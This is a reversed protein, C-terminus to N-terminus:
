LWDESESFMLADVGGGWWGVCVVWSRGMILLHLEDFVEDVAITISGDSEERFLRFVHYTGDLLGSM